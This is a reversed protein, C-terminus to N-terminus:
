QIPMLLEVRKRNRLVVTPVTEGPKRTLMHRTLLASETMAEDSGGVEIIIDGEQFGARKAAAHKNYQGVHIAELALKGEEIGARRRASEDLEELKMGGFAMARMPWTGVRRSIDAKKRWDGSLPLVLEMKEGARVVTATIEGEEPAEHLIWSIDAVSILPQGGLFQILDGKQFGGAAAPSEPAVSGITTVADQEMTMGVTEPAPYPAILELPLTEGRDRIALRAADGIQHCHVCSKVVQGNWDLESRYKGKLQPMDVPTQYPMPSGKKGALAAQYTEFNKHLALVREMAQKLGSTARNQSDKQHEWSGFRGYITKDPHFFLVSFSLDFDFQFLSLDLANANIVRVRVFQDMLSTLDRNEMLVETDIGMCALCPVCRLVVMLPKGAKEAEAFGADIDNYIWRSNDEMKAADKRVAGERDKVTEASSITSFLFFGFFVAPFSKM